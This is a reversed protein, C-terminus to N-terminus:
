HQCFFSTGSPVGKVSTVLTRVAAGGGTSNLPRGLSIFIAFGGLENSDTLVGDISNLVLCGDTDSSVAVSTGTAMRGNFKDAFDVRVGGSSTTLSVTEGVGPPVQGDGFGIQFEDVGAAFTTLGDNSTVPSGALFFGSTISGALTTINVGGIFEGSSSDRRSFNATSGSLLIVIDKRINVLDRTCYRKTDDCAVAIPDTVSVVGNNCTNTRDSIEEPCLTGNYIGNGANFLGDLDKLNNTPDTDGFDIFEEEDGGVQFCMDETSPTLPAAPGYCSPNAANRSDDLTPDGNGFVGDENLDHFAETLDVFEEGFDYQGNGNTDIFSEEGQAFALVTSRAGVIQGLGGLYASAIDSTGRISSICPVGLKAVFPLTAVGPNSIDPDAPNNFAVGFDEDLYKRTYSILLNAEGECVPTDCDIGDDKTTYDVGTILAQRNSGRAVRFIASPVYDLIADSVPDAALNVAVLEDVILNTPCSDTSLLQVTTNPNTPRRPEQSQLTVTCGGDVTNCSAQISGYETRFQVTTGDPVPNNFADAMLVTIEATIGDQTEGEIDLLSASISMSNQDPVGTNVSLGDSLTEIPFDIPFPDDIDGDSNGDVIVSARVRVTTPILGANVTAIAKGDVDTLGTDSVLTLGGVTTTLEFSVTADQVPDGGVDLIQFVVLASSTGTGKIQISDPTVSDFRISGITASLVNIIGMADLANSSENATITDNGVCGTALYTATVVGNSNSNLSESIQALPPSQNACSSSFTIEIDPVVVINADVVVLSVASTGGASIPSVTIDLNGPTFTPTGSCDTAGGIGAGGSCTGIQLGDVGVEFQVTETTEGVIVTVTGTGFGTGATLDVVLGGDFDTIDTTISGPTGGGISVAGLTTSVTVSRNPLNTGSDDEVLVTITAPNSATIINSSNETTADVFTLTVTLAASGANGLSSFTLSDSELSNGEVVVTATATSAGAVSGATLSVSAVGNSDTLASGTAPFIEGVTGQLSFQVVTGSSLVGDATVTAFLLGPKDADISEEGADSTDGNTDLGVVITFEVSGAVPDEPDPGASILSGGGGGGCASLFATFVLIFCARPLIGQNMM